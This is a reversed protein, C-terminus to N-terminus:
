RKRKRLYPLVKEMEEMDHESQRKKVMESTLKVGSPPLIPIHLGNVIRTALPRSAGRVILESAAEGMSVSHEEAFQKVAAHADGRLALTTRTTPIDDVTSM